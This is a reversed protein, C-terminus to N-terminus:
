IEYIIFIHDEDDCSKAAKLCEKYTYYVEGFELSNFVETDIVCRYYVKYYFM